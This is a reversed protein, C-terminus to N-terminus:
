IVHLLAGSFMTRYPHIYYRDREDATSVYVRDGASVKVVAANGGTLHGIGQVLALAKSIGNVQLKVYALQSTDSSKYRVQVNFMFVYLGSLPVTFIGTSPSYHSGENYHVNDFKIVTINNYYNYNSRLEISFGVFTGSAPCYM